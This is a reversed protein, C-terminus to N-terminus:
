IESSNLINQVVIIVSRNINMLIVYNLMHQVNDSGCSISRGLGLNESVKYMYPSPILGLGLSFDVDM